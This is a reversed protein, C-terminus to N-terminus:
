FQRFNSTFKKEGLSPIVSQTESHCSQDNRLWIGLKKWRWLSPFTFDLRSITDLVGRFSLVLIELLNHITNEQYKKKQTSYNAITSRQKLSVETWGPALDLLEAAQQPVRKRDSTTSTVWPPFPPMPPGVLNTVRSVKQAVWPYFIHDLFHLRM